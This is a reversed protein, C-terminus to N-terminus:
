TDKCYKKASCDVRAVALKASFPNITGGCKEAMIPLQEEARLIDAADSNGQCISNFGVEAVRSGPSECM